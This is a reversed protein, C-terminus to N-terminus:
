DETISLAGAAFQPQILNAVTLPDNLAGSYFIQGGTSILEGVSVHTITAGTAGCQPFQLLAANTFTSGGDTWGSARTLPQRAYNTYTTESTTQVGAEGPDATHLAIYVNPNAMWGPAVGKLFAALVDHETTNSKSM